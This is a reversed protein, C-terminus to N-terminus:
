RESDFRQALAIVEARMTENHFREDLTKRLAWAILGAERESVGTIPAPISQEAM